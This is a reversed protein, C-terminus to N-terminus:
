VNGTVEKLVEPFKLALTKLLEKEKALDEKAKKEEYLARDKEAQIARKEAQKREEERQIRKKETYEAVLKEKIEKLNARYTDLKVRYDDSKLYSIPLTYEAIHTDMDGACCGCHRDEVDYRLQVKVLDDKIEFDTVRVTEDWDCWGIERGSVHTFDFHKSVEPKFNVEQLLVVQRYDQMQITHMTELMDLFDELERYVAYEHELLINFSM